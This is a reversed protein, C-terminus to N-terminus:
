NAAYILGQYVALYSYENKGGQVFNSSCKEMTEVIVPKRWDAQLLAHLHERQLQVIARNQGPVSNEAITM